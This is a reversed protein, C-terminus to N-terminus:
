KRALRTEVGSVVGTVKKIFHNAIKLQHNVAKQPNEFGRNEPSWYMEGVGHYKGDSLLTFFNWKKSLDYYHGHLSLNGCYLAWHWGLNEFIEIKWARPNDLMNKAKRAESLAEAKSEM